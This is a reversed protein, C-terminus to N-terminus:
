DDGSLVIPFPQCYGCVHSSRQNVLIRGIAAGCRPCPQGTKRFVNLASRNRGPKQGPAVFNSQGTGLSTGANRIGKRLVRRIARHLKVAENENLTNSIRLPHIAADWLAEDVYINGLGAVMRQDLITETGTVLNVRGFKRTDYFALRRGDDLRMLLHEHTKRKEAAPKVYLRGTMRLHILLTANGILDIVIYKARRWIRAISQGKVQRRFDAPRNPAVTRPWHLQVAQFTRGVIREANLADVVTQVEPLEPM